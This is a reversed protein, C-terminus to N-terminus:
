PIRGYCILSSYSVVSHLEYSVRVWSTQQLDCAGVGAKQLHWAIHNASGHILGALALRPLLIKRGGRTFGVNKM